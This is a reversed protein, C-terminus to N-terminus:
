VPNPPPDLFCFFFSKWAIAISVAPKAFSRSIDFASSSRFYALCRYYCCDFSYANILYAVSIDFAADWCSSLLFVSSSIYICNATSLDLNSASAWDYITAFFWSNNFIICYNSSSFGTPHPKLFFSALSAYSSKLLYSSLIAWAILFNSSFWLFSFSPSRLM